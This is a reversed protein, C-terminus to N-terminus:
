PCLLMRCCLQVRRCAHTYVSCCWEACLLQCVKASEYVQKYQKTQERFAQIVIDDEDAAGSYVLPHNVAPTILAILPQTLPRVICTCTVLIRSLSCVGKHKLLLLVSGGRARHPQRVIHEQDRRKCVLCILYQHM